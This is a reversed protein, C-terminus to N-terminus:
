VREEQVTMQKRMRALAEKHIQCCRSETVHMQEGIEKMTLDDGYYLTLVRRHKAPLTQIAAALREHEDKEALADVPDVTQRDVIDVEEVDCLQAQEGREYVSRPTFSMSRIEDLMAGRIRYEAYTKFSAGGERTQDHKKAADMLGIAGASVLDDAEIHAPLRAAMRRALMRIVPLFHQMCEESLM